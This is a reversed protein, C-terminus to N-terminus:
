RPSSSPARRPRKELVRLRGPRRRCVAFVRARRPSAAGRARGGLRPRAPCAETTHTATMFSRPFGTAVTPARRRPPTLREPELRVQRRRTGDRETEDLEPSNSARAAERGRAPSHCLPREVRIVYGREARERFLNKEPKGGFQLSGIWVFLNESKVEYPLRDYFSSKGGKMKPPLKETNRTSTVHAARM